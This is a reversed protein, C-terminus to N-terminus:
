VMKWTGYHDLYHIHVVVCGLEDWNLFKKTFKFVKKKKQFHECNTLSFTKITINVIENQDKVEKVIEINKKRDAGITTKETKTIKKGDKIITSTKTSVSEGMGCGGFSSSFFNSSFGSNGFDQDDGFIDDDFFGFGRKGGFFDGGFMGDGFPDKGNFFMKFLNNADAFSFDNMGSFGGESDGFQDYNARKKKDSLISYAESIDKFKQEHPM